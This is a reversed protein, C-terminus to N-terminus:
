FGITGPSAAMLFPCQFLEPDTALIVTHGPEGNSWRSIDIYTLQSLRTLLNYEARPYEIAWGSGSPDSRVTTFMLRCFTFGAPRDPLGRIVAQRSRGGGFRGP